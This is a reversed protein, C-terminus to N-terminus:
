YGVTQEFGPTSLVFRDHVSAIFDDNGPHCIFDKICLMLFGQTGVFRMLILQDATVDVEIIPTRHRSEGKAKDNHVEQRLRSAAKRLSAHNRRSRMRRILSRPSKQVAQVFHVGKEM